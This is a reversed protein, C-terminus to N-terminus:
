AAARAIMTPSAPPIGLTVPAAPPPSVPPTPDSTMYGRIAILATSVLATLIPGYVGVDASAFAHGAYTLFAASASLAAGEVIQLLQKNM